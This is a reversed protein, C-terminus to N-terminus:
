APPYCIPLETLDELDNRIGFTELNSWVASERVKASYEYFALFNEETLYGDKDKDYQEYIKDVRNESLSSVEGVCRQHYKICHAKSMLGLQSYERFMKRLAGKCKETLSGDVQCLSIKEVTSVKEVVVEGETLGLTHIVRGSLRPNLEKDGHLLKVEKPFANIHRSVIAKLEHLTLSAPAEISMRCKNVNFHDVVKLSLVQNLFLGAM